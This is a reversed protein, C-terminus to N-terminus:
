RSWAPTEARGSYIQKQGLGDATTIWLGGRSSSFVILNGDRAWSPSRNSGQGQTLRTIEGNQVNVTFIDFVGAEDRGTFAVLPCDPRPCWDPEQNYNGAFTLRRSGGGSSSMVYIQPSGGRNSVFAIQSGNPSWTPSTDIAADRTLQRKVAGDLGILYIEPNGDKSLTLAIERGGPSFAAGANLGTRHSIRTSRGGGLLFLDPNNWLYSTYALQGSPSWAPLVNLPGTRSVQHVGHGDFDMVYIQATQRAPNAVTFAIRTDFVGPQGTYHRVIDDAFRHALRRPVRDHYDRALVPRDGSAVDYLYWEARLTGDPRPTARVKVVAQAGVSEWKDTEIGTGEQELDALFAKPHLVIFSGVLDLDNSLVRQLIRREGELKVDGLAPPVAVRFLSQGSGSIETYSREEDATAVSTWLAGLVVAAGVMIM